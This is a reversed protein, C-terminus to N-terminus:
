DRQSQSKLKTILDTQEQIIEVARKIKKQRDIDNWKNIVMKVDNSQFTEPFTRYRVGIYNIDTGAKVLMDAVDNLGNCIAVDLPTMNHKNKTNLKSITYRDIIYQLKYIMDNYQGESYGMEDGLNIHTKLIIHLINEDDNNKAYVDAGYEILQCMMTKNITPVRYSRSVSDNAMVSLMLCNNGHKDKHNIKTKWFDQELLLTMLYNNHTLVAGMLMNYGTKPDIYKEYKENNEIFEAFERSVLSPNVSKSFGEFFHKFTNYPDDKVMFKPKFGAELFDTVIDPSGHRMVNKIPAWSSNVTKLLTEKKSIANLFPQYLDKEVSSFVYTFSNNITENYDDSEAMFALLIGIIDCRKYQCATDLVFESRLVSKREDDTLINLANVVLKLRNQIILVVLMLENGDIDLHSERSFDAGISCEKIVKHKGDVVKNEESSWSGHILTIQYSKEPDM